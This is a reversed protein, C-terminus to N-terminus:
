IEGENYLSEGTKRANKERHRYPNEAIGEFTSYAGNEEMGKSASGKKGKKAYNRRSHFRKRSLHREKRLPGFVSGM